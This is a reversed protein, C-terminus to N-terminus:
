ILIMGELAAEDVRLDDEDNEPELGVEDSLQSNARPLSLGLRLQDILDQFADDDEPGFLPACDAEPVDEDGLVGGLPWVDWDMNRLEETAPDAFMSAQASLNARPQPSAPEFQNCCHIHKNFTSQPPIIPANPASNGEVHRLQIMARLAGLELLHKTGTIHAM